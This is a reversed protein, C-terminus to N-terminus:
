HRKVARRHRGGGIQGDAYRSGVVRADSSEVNGALEVHRVRRGKARLKAPGLPPTGRHHHEVEGVQAEHIDGAKSGNEVRGATGAAVPALQHHCIRQRADDPQELQGRDVLRDLDHGPRDGGGVSRRGGLARRGRRRAGRTRARAGVRRDGVRDVRRGACRRRVDHGSQAVLLCEGKTLRANTAIVGITTSAFPEWIQSAGALDVREPGRPEGWANAVVLAGVVLEGDRISASGIGGPRPDGRWKAVTAGAGAGIQGIELSDARAAACAAYGQDAGPRVNPDGVPLDFISAGVVIPVPGAPTPVGRGQEECWRMAGDCAALGFASGGSLM